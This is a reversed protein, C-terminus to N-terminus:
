FHNGSRSSYHTSFRYLVLGNCSLSTIYIVKKGNTNSMEEKGVNLLGLEVVCHWCSFGSAKESRLYRYASTFPM